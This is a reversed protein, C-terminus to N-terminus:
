EGLYDKLIDETKKLVAEATEKLKPSHLAKTDQPLSEYCAQNFYDEMYGHHMEEEVEKRIVFVGAEELREAYVLGEECLADAQAMFLAAPACGALERAPTHVPSLEPNKLDAGNGYLETFAEMVEVPVDAPYKKKEAPQAAADLFPYHLIQCALSFEKRKGARVATVAALQAGASFGMVAMKEPNIFFAAANDHVYKIVDYADEVAAPYPYEPAKRYNVGIVTIGTEKRIRERLAANKAANGLVFGGGHFEFLVPVRKGPARHVYIEIERGPLLLLQKEGAMPDKKIIEM